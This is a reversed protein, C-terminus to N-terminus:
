DVEKQVKQGGLFLQSWIKEWKDAEDLTIVPDIMEFKFKNLPTDVAQSAPVRNLDRLLTQGQTSLMFDSFLLAAHPNPARLTWASRMRRGFTPNLAKVSVPAGRAIM